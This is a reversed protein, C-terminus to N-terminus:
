GERNKKHLINSKTHLKQLYHLINESKQTKKYSFASLEQM